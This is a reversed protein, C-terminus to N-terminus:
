HTMSARIGLVARQVSLRASRLAVSSASIPWGRAHPSFRRAARRRSGRGSTPPFCFGSSVRRRGTSPPCRAGACSLWRLAPERERARILTGATFSPTTDLIFSPNIAKHKSGCFPNGPPGAWPLPARGAPEATHLARAASLNRGRLARDEARAFPTNPLHLHWLAGVYGSEYGRIERAEHRHEAAQAGPSHLPGRRPRKLYGRAKM